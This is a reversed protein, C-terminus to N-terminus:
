KVLLNIMRKVYNKKVPNTHFGHDCKVSASSFIYDDPLESLNNVDWGVFIICKM